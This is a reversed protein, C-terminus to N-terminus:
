RPPLEGLAQVAARSVATRETRMPELMKRAEDPNKKGILLALRIQAEDKSVTVTPHAVLDRLTKEASNLDCVKIPIIGIPHIHSDFLGPLM